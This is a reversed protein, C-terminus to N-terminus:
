YRFKAALSFVNNTFDSGALASENNRYAYAGAITVNKSVIYDVGVQGEVYDDTRTYYDISRFSLGANFSLQESVKTSLVGGVSFNKQEQGSASVGFDNSVTLQLSSKPTLAFNLMADIDLLDKNGGVDLERQGYGVMVSGTVMPSFEGRAGVRYFYDKSDIGNQIETTRYKAGFSLDVKSTVAYYYNVPIEFSNMDKFGARKYNTDNYKAGVGVKSKASASLEANASINTVDRRALAAGGRADVTNQNLQNFGAQASFKTKGDDYSSNFNLSSLETDLAGNDSYRAINETYSFSGQTISGKGFTLQVGPNIDFIVDDVNTTNLFVNDDARVGLTGTLFFEAGDGVALFPAPFAVSAAALFLAISRISTKM